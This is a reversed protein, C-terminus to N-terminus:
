RISLPIYSSIPCWFSRQCGRPAGGGRVGDGYSTEFELLESLLIKISFLNPLALCQVRQVPKPVPANQYVVSMRQKSLTLIIETAIVFPTVGYGPENEM